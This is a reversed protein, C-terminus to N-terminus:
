AKSTRQRLDTPACGLLTRCVHNFTRLSQFGSEFAVQIVPLSTEQLLRTAHEIRYQNVFAKFHIGFLDHFANSLYQYNYGLERATDRLTLENKFHEEVYHTVRAALNESKEDMASQRFEAQSVYDCGIAYLAAKAALMQEKTLHEYGRFSYFHRTMEELFFRVTGEPPSFIPTLPIQGQLATDLGGVLQASFVSCWLRADEELQLRHVQFPHIMVAPGPVVTYTNGTVTVKTSGKTPILIEYNKHFHPIGIPGPNSTHDYHYATLIQRNTNLVQHHVVAQM